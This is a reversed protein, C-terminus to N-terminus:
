RIMNVSSNVIIQTVDHLVQRRGKRNRDSPKTNVSPHFFFLFSYIWTKIGTTLNIGNCKKKNNEKLTTFIM